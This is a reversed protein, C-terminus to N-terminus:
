RLPSRHRRAVLTRIRSCTGGAAMREVSFNAQGSHASSYLVLEQREFGVLTGQTGFFLFYRLQGADFVDCATVTTAPHDVEFAAARRMVGYM